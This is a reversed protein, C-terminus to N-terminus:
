MQRPVPLGKALMANRSMEDAPMWGNELLSKIYLKNYIFPLVFWALGSTIIVLILSLVTWKLDGRFLPVFIGFFLMTWSFGLKVQKVVGISNRMYVKM